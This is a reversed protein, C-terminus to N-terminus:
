GETMQTVAGIPGKVLLNEDSALEIYLPPCCKFDPFTHTADTASPVSGSSLSYGGSSNCEFTVSLKRSSGSSPYAIEWQDASQVHVAM